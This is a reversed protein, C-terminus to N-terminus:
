VQLQSLPQDPFVQAWAVPHSPPGSQPWPLQTALPALWVQLQWLPQDPFVQASGM